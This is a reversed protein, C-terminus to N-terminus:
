RDDDDNGDGHGGGVNHGNDGAHGNYKTADHAEIISHQSFVIKVRTNINQKFYPVYSDNARM